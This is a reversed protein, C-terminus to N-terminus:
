SLRFIAISRTENPLGQLAIVVTGCCDQQCYEIGGTSQTIQKTGMSAATHFQAVIQLSRVLRGIKPETIARTENVTDAM